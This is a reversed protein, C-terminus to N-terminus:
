SRKLKFISLYEQVGQVANIGELEKIETIIKLNPFLM